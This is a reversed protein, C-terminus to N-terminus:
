EREILIIHLKKNQRLLNKVKDTAVKLGADNVAEYEGIFKLENFALAKVLDQKTKIVAIMSDGAQDQRNGSQRIRLEDSM